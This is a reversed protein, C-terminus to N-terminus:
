SKKEGRGQGVRKINRSSFINELCFICCWCFFIFVILVIKKSIGSPTEKKLINSPKGTFQFHVEMAAQGEKRIKGGM